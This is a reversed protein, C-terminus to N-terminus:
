HAGSLPQREPRTANAMEEALWEDMLRRVRHHSVPAGAAELDHLIRERVGEDAFYAGLRVIFGAYAQADAVSHDMRRAAWLALRHNRRAVARFRLDEENAFLREFAQERDAFLSM